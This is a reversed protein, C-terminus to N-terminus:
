IMGQVDSRKSTDTAKDAVAEDDAENDAAKDDDSAHLPIQIADSFVIAEDQLQRDSMKGTGTTDLTEDAVADDAAKDYAAKDDDSVHLSVSPSMRGM